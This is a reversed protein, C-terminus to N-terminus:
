DSCPDPRFAQFDALNGQLTFAGYDLVLQDSVGNTDLTYSVIFDPGTDPAQPDFYNLSVPWARAPTPFDEWVERQSAADDESQDSGDAAIARLNAV